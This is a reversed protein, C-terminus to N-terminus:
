HPPVPKHAAVITKAPRGLHNDSFRGDQKVSDLSTHKALDKQRARALRAGWDAVSSGILSSCLEVM